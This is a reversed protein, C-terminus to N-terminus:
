LMQYKCESFEDHKYKYMYRTSVQKIGSEESNYISPSRPTMSTQSYGWRMM